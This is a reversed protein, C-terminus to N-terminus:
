SENQKAKFTIECTYGAHEFQYFNDGFEVYKVNLEKLVKRIEPDFTQLLKQAPSTSLDTM